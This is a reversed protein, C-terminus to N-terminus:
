FGNPRDSVARQFGTPFSGYHPVAPSPVIDLITVNVRYPNPFFRFEKTVHSKQKEIEAPSYRPVFVVGM